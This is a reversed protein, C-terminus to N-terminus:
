IKMNLERKNKEIELYNKGNFTITAVGSVFLVIRIFDPLSKSTSAYIMTPGLLFVDLLRIEQYSYAIEDKVNM